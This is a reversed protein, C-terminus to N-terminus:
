DRRTDQTTSGFHHRTEEQRDRSANHQTTDHQTKNHQTTNHQRTKRKNDLIIQAVAVSLEVTGGGKIPGFYNKKWNMQFIFCVM